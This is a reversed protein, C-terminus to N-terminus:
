LRVRVPRLYPPGPNSLMHQGQFLCSARVEVGPWTRYTWDRVSDWGHSYVCRYDQTDFGSGLGLQWGQRSPARVQTGPNAKATTEKMEPGLKLIALRPGMSIASEM